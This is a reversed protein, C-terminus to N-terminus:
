SMTRVATVSGDFTVSGVIRGTQDKVTVRGAQKLVGHKLAEALMERASVDAEQMAADDDAFETGQADTASM